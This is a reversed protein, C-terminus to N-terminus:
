SKPQLVREQLQRIEGQSSMQRLVQSLQRILAPRWPYQQANVKSFGIFAQQRDLVLTPRLEAPIRALRSSDRKAQRWAWEVSLRDNAYCDVAGVKLAALGEMADRFEVRLVAGDQFPQNLSRSMLFGQNVGIQLGRFDLPWRPSGPLPLGQRCYLAVDEEGLPGVYADIYPREQPWRYPPILALASGEQLMALGRAWAVPQLHLRYAPLRKFAAQLIDNYLGKPQGEQQYTYPPYNEDYYIIVTQPEAMLPTILALWGCLLLLYRM